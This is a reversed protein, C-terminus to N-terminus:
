LGANRKVLRVLNERERNGLGNRDQRLRAVCVLGAVLRIDPGAIAEDLANVSFTPDNDNATLADWSHPTGSGSPQAKTGKVRDIM